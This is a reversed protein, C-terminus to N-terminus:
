ESFESFENFIEQKSYVEFPVGWFFEYPVPGKGELHLREVSGEPYYQPRIYMSDGLIGAIVRFNVNFDASYREATEGSVYPRGFEDQLLVGDQKAHERIAIVKEAKMWPM